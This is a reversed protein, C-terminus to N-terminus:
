TFREIQGSEFIRVKEKLGGDNRTAILYRVFENTGKRILSLQYPDIKIDDGDAFDLLSSIQESTLKM